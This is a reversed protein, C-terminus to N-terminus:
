ENDNWLHDRMLFLIKIESFKSLEHSGLFSHLRDFTEEWLYENYDSILHNIWNVHSKNVSWNALPFCSSCGVWTYSYAPAQFHQPPDQVCHLFEQFDNDGMQISVERVGLSARGKLVKNTHRERPLGRERSLRKSSREQHGEAAGPRGPTDLLQRPPVPFCPDIGLQVLASSAELRGDRGGAGGM